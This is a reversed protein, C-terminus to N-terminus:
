KASQIVWNGADKKLVFTYYGSVAGGAYWKGIAQVTDGEPELTDVSLIMAPKGTDKDVPTRNPQLNASSSPKIPPVHNPFAKILADVEDDDGQLFVASYGGDDWFHGKLLYTYVAVEVDFLDQKPLKPKENTKPPTMPAEARRNLTAMHEPSFQIPNKDTGCGTLLVVLMAASAALSISTKFRRQNTKM